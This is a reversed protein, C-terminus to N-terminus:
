RMWPIDTAQKGHLCPAQALVDLCLRPPRCKEIGGRRVVEAAIGSYLARAGARPAFIRMVSVRNPNHGSRGLRQIAGSISRPCGIQFFSPRDRGVDIEWNWPVIHACLLRLKAGVCPKSWRM